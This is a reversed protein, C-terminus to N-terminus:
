VEENQSLKKHTIAYFLLFAIGSAFLIISKTLLNLNLDYYYQSIFYILSIVGIAFGAKHNVMFCLLIILLAGSIAPSLATPILVLVSFSYILILAKHETIELTKVIRSIVFIALPITIVSSAWIQKIEFDFIGRQGVFVLGTVVSILLGTRIPSYLKSPFIKSALLKAENFFIYTLSVLLIADYVHILNQFENDIILFIFSGHITLISIFSLIYNRTIGITVASILILLSCISNNGINLESLGFSILLVGLVYASVSLTDIILRKYVVNLFIAAGIFCFGTAVLGVESNYLGAIVLFGLFTLTALLGGLVSLVKIAISSDEKQVNTYENEIAIENYEFDDGELKSIYDINARININNEMTGNKKFIM